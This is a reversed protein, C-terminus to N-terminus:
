RQASADAEVSNSSQAEAEVDMRKTKVGGSTKSDNKASARASSGDMTFDSQTANDVAGNALIGKDRPKRSANDDRKGSEDTERDARKAVGKGRHVAGDARGSGEGVATLGTEDMNAGSSLAGDLAGNALVGQNPKTGSQPKEVAANGAKNIVSAGSSASGAADVTSDISSITSQASGAASGATDVTSDISGATSGAVDVATNASGAAGVAAANAAGNVTATTSTAVSASTDQAQEVKSQARDRTYDVTERTRRKLGDTDASISGGVSGRTMADVGRAGGSITGGLAGNVNGGLVQAYAPSACTLVAAVAVSAFYRHTNM